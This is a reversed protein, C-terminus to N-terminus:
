LSAARTATHVEAWAAKTSSQWAPTSSAGGGERKETCFAKVSYVKPSRRARRTAGFSLAILSASGMSVSSMRASLVLARPHSAM